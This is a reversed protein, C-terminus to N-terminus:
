HSWGECHKQEHAKAYADNPSYLGICWGKGWLACAGGHAGVAACIRPADATEIMSVRKDSFDATKEWQVCGTLLLILAYRM